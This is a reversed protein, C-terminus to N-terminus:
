PGGNAMRAASVPKRRAPVAASPVAPGAGGVVQLAREGAVGGRTTSSYVDSPQLEHGGASAHSDVSFPRASTM